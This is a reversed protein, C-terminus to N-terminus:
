TEMSIVSQKEVVHSHTIILSWSALVLSGAAMCACSALLYIEFLWQEESGWYSFSIEKSKLGKLTVAVLSFTFSAPNNTGQVGSPRLTVEFLVLNFWQGFLWKKLKVTVLAILQSTLCQGLM